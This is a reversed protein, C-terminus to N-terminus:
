RAELQGLDALAEAASQYRSASDTALLREVWTRIGPELDHLGHPPREHCEALTLLRTVDSFPHVGAFLLSAILGVGFLDTAAGHVEGKLQEPTEWGPSGYWPAPLAVDLLKAHGLSDFGINRPKLDCHLLPGGSAGHLAVLGLLIEEIIRRARERPMTEGADILERLEDHLTTSQLREMRLFTGVPTVVAGFVACVHPNSIRAIREVEGLFHSQLGSPMIGMCKVAIVTRAQWDVAEWVEGSAGSGLRFSVQLHDSVYCGLFLPGNNLGLFFEQRHCQNYGTLMDLVRGTTETMTDSAGQSNKLDECQTSLETMFNPSSRLAESKLM